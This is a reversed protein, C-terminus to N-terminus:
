ATNSYLSKLADDSLKTYDNNYLAMLDSDSLKSYDM